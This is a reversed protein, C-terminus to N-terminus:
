RSFGARTPPAGAPRLEVPPEAPSANLNARGMRTEPVAIGLLFLFITLSASQTALGSYSAGAVTAIVAAAITGTTAKGRLGRVVITVVLLGLVLAAPVGFDWALMLFGNELSTALAGQERFTGSSGFGTGVISHQWIRDFFLETALQRAGTSESSGEFRDFLGATLPNPVLLIYGVSTAVVVTTVFRTTFSMKSRAVLYLLGCVALAAGVRSQTLVIGMTLLMSAAVRIPVRRIQACLPIAVVLMFALDLPSDLTGVARVLTGPQFWYFALRETAFNLVDGTVFQALALPVQVLALCVFGLTLRRIGDPDNSAVCRVLLFILFASVFTNLFNQASSANREALSVLTGFVVFTVITLISGLNATVARSAGSKARGAVVILGVLLSWTGPHFGLTSGTLLHGAVSPILTWVALGFLAVRHPKRALAISVTASLAIWILLQVAATYTDTHADKPQTAEM